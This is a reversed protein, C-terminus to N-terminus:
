RRIGIKNVSIRFIPINFQMERYSLQYLSPSNIRLDWTRAQDLVLVCFFHAGRHGNEKRDFRLSEIRVSPTTGAIMDARRCPATGRKRAPLRLHLKCRTEQLPRTTVPNWVSRGPTTQGIYIGEHSARDYNKNKFVRKTVFYVGGLSKFRTELPWAHFCYKEGSKGSFMIDGYKAMGIKAQHHEHNEYYAWQERNVLGRGLSRGGSTSFAQSLRSKCAWHLPYGALLQVDLRQLKATHSSVGAPRPKKM